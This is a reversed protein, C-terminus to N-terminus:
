RIATQLLTMMTSLNSEGYTRIRSLPYGALGIMREKLRDREQVEPDDHWPSDLEVFYLPRSGDPSFVVLDVLVRFFTDREERSLLGRVAAFDLASHLAANPVLIHDDFVRRAAQYLVREQSSRFLSRGGAVRQSGEVQTTQGMPSASTETPGAADYQALVGRCADAQPRYRAFQVARGPMQRNRNVLTEAILDLQTEPMRLYGGRQLLLLRELHDDSLTTREATLNALVADVLVKRAEAVVAGNEGRVAHVQSLASTWDQQAVAQFLAETDVTEQRM